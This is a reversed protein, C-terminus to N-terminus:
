KEQILERIYPKIYIDKINILSLIMCLSKIRSEFPRNKNIVITKEDEFICYGSNFNGNELIVKYDLREFIEKLEVYIAKSNL